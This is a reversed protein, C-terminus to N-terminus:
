VICDEERWSAVSYTREEQLGSSLSAVHIDLIFRINVQHDYDM